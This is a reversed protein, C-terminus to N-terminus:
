LCRWLFMDLVTERFKVAEEIKAMETFVVVM